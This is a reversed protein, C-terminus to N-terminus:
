AAALGAVKQLEIIQDEHKDVKAQTVVLEERTDSAIKVARDTNNEIREIRESFNEGLEAKLKETVVDGILDKLNTLDQKTLM